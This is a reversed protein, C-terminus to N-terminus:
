TMGRRILPEALSAVVGAGGAVSQEAPAPAEQVSGSSPETAAGPAGAVLVDETEKGPEAEITAEGTRRGTDSGGLSAYIPITRGSEFMLSQFTERSHGKGQRRGAREAAVVTGVIQNTELGDTEIMQGTNVAAATV